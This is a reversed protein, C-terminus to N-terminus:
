EAKPATVESPLDTGFNRRYLANLSGDALSARIWEDVKARLRDQGKKVGIGTVNTRLVIRTTMNIAPDRDATAKILAPATCYADAQGTLIATMSTADDDFRIISTGPPASRTVADDNTTGRTVAVRLKALDAMEKLATKAPAGVVIQIASYPVSFDIVKRREDTISLTSVVLDSRNTILYPIRNAQTTSIIELQVGWDQALKRAVEVESGAYQGAQDLVSYPPAAPDISIRVKKQAMVTDLGDARAPRGSWALGALATATAIFSRRTAQAM